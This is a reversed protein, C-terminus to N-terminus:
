LSPRHHFTAKERYDCINIMGFSTTYVFMSGTKASKASTIYEEDVSRKRDYSFVNYMSKHFKEAWPKFSHNLNFINILKEDAVLFNEYDPLMSMSHIHQEKGTWFTSIHKGEQSESVSKIKPISLGKGKQVKKKISEFKNVKKNVIKFLKVM